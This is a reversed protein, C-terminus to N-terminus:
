EKVVLLDYHVRGEYLVCVPATDPHADTGYESIKKIVGGSGRWWRAFPNNGDEEDDDDDGYGSASAAATESGM